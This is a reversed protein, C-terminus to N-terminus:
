SGVASIAECVRDGFERTGLVKGEDRAIDRTGWGSELVSRVAAIIAEGEKKLGFGMSMMMAGSLISGMPNAYNKGAARPFSGAIPEFLSTKEGISASPLMGLSGVIVSAEDTLIDGFMNETVVVDFSTPRKMFQMAANDVLLFETEVEGYEGAVRGVVERWLRSTELVNSKDVVTLKRRRSRALEYGYRVVREIEEVSYECTDYAYMGDESRGRKGFYIGGILERVVVFDTGEVVEARLPSRSEVGSFTYIPRVNAYLGLAKRMALLGQEPRINAGDFKPDGVAGLLIADAKRCLVETEEPFPSGLGDIAAGGILGEEFEFEHGFREAVAELVRRGEATIESGVGDGGLVAIFKKM